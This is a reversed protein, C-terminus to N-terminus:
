CAPGIPDHHIHESSMRRALMRVTETVMADPGSIFVERDECSAHQRVADPLLGALGAWDPDHSVAPIVTLGPCAAALLSLDRMDYLDSATRAGVYLSIKRQAARRPQGAQGPQGTQGAATIVGEVLAKIPALGTGGAICLLDRQSDGAITLDGRAPGLLLIDGAQVYHVLATSVMGGPVARVHLDLLGSARPANAISFSRWVRPWRAVQVAVYQGPRFALPQDPRITLVALDPRRLDHRVIEGIWWPPAQRADAAAAARMICGISAAATEWAAQTDATWTGAGFNRVTDLLVGFFAEYHKDKVGFKRHDRGLQGVYATLAQPSDMSWVIRALAGFVRERHTSMALPFMARVEPHRVFLWTYFHEMAERARGEIVAFSEKVLRADGASIRDTANEGRAVNVATAEVQGSPGPVAAVASQRPSSPTETAAGSRPGQGDARRNFATWLPQGAFMGSPNGDPFGGDLAIAV